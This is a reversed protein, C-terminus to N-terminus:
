VHSWTKRNIISWINSMVVNYKRALKNYSTTGTAYEDRISKVQEETLKAFVCAEGIYNEKRKLGTRYAHANNESSTCWNLNSVDNNLKNGDIHNIYKYNNPNDLFTLAVLRHVLVNKTKRTNNYLKVCKYGYSNITPLIDQEVKTYSHTKLHIRREVSKIEGDRSIVYFGDFDKVPKWFEIEEKEKM